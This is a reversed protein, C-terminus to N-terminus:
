KRKERYLNPKYYNREELFFYVVFFLIIYKLESVIGFFSHRPLFLVYQYIFFDVIFTTRNKNNYRKKDLYKIILALIFSWLVVGIFGFFDYAETLFNLGLGGGTEVAYPNLMYLTILGYNNSVKMYDIPNLNISRFHFQIPRIINTLIFPYHRYPIDGNNNIYVYPVGMTTTQGYLFNLLEGKKVQMSLNSRFNGLFIAGGCLVFFLIVIQMRSLTKRYLKKMILPICLLYTFFFARGGKLATTLMMIFYLFYGFKVKKSSPFSYLFLLFGIYFFTGSGKTWWPFSVKRNHQTFNAIAYDSFAKQNQIQLIIKYVLPIIFIYMIVMGIKYYFTNTFVTNDKKYILETNNKELVIEKKIKCNYVIEIVTISIAAIFVFKEAVWDPFSYTGLFNISLVGKGLLPGLIFKDYMFFTSTLLYFCYLTYFNGILMQRLIIFFYGCIFFSTLWLINDTHIYLLDGLLVTLLFSSLTIYFYENYYKIRM